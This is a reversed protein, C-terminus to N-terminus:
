AALLRDLGLLRLIALPQGRLGQLTVTGGQERVRKYLSVVAGVGSSDILQLASLDVEVKLRRASVVADLIARVDPTSIADFSGALRLITQDGVDNRRLALPEAGWTRTNIAISASANDNSLTLSNDFKPTM